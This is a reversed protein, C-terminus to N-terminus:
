NTPWIWTGAAKYLCFFDRTCPAFPTPLAGSGSRVSHLVSFKRSGGSISSQNRSGGVWIRTVTDVLWAAIFSIWISPMSCELIGLFEVATYQSELRGVEVSWDRTEFNFKWNVSLAIIVISWFCSCFTFHKLYKPLMNVSSPLHVQSILDLIAM